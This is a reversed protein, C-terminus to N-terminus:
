NCEIPNSGGLNEQSSILDLIQALIFEFDTVDMRFMERFGAWYEISLKKIINNFYGRKRRRKVWKRIKSRHPKKDDSDMLENLVLLTAIDVM